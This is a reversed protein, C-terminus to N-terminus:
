RQHVVPRPRAVYETAASRAATFFEVNTSAQYREVPDTSMAALDRHESAALDLLAALRAYDLRGDDTM